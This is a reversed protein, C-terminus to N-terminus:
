QKPEKLGRAERLRDEAGALRQRSDAVKVEARAILFIKAADWTDHIDHWSTTKVVRSDVEEGNFNRERVTVFNPSEKVVNIPTIDDNYSTKYKIM